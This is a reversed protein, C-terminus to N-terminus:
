RPHASGGLRVLSPDSRVGSPSAMAGAAVVQHFASSNCDRRRGLLTAETRSVVGADRSEILEKLECLAKYADEHAESARTFRRGVAQMDGVFGVFKDCLQGAVRAIEQSNRNQHEYRWVSEVLRLTAILTSPCVVLVNQKLAVQYLEPNEQMGLMYASEVAVFM